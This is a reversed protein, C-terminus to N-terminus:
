SSPENSRLPRTAITVPPLRPIPLAMAPPIRPGRRWPPPPWGSPRPRRSRQRRSGRPPPRHVRRPSGCRPCGLLDGSRTSSVTFAKPPTSMTTLLAALGARGAPRRWSERPWPWTRPSWSGRAPAPQHLLGERVQALRAVCRDHVHRGGPHVRLARVHRQVHRRLRRHGRHGARHGGLQGTVADPGVGQSGSGDRRVHHEARGLLELGRRDVLLQDLTHGRGVSITGAAAKRALSAELKMVPWVSTTSPPIVTWQGGARCAVAPLGSSRGSRCGGVGPESSPRTSRSTRSSATPTTVSLRGSRRFARDISMVVAMVSANAAM